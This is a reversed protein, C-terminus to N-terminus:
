AHRVYVSIALSALVYVVFCTGISDVLCLTRISLQDGSGIRRTTLGNFICLHLAFLDNSLGASHSTTQSGPSSYETDTKRERASTKTLLASLFLPARARTRERERALLVLVSCDIKEDVCM